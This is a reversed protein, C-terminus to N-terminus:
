EAPLAGSIHREDDDYYSEVPTMKLNLTRPWAALRPTSSEAAVTTHLMNIKPPAYHASLQLSYSSHEYLVVIAVRAMVSEVNSM